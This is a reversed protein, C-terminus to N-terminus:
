MLTWFNFHLTSPYMSLGNLILCMLTQCIVNLENTAIFPFDQWRICIVRKQFFMKSYKQLLNPMFMRLVEKTRRIQFLFNRGVDRGILLNTVTLNNLIVRRVKKGEVIFRYNENKYLFLSSDFHLNEKVNINLGGEVFM